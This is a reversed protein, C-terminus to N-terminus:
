CRQLRGIPDDNGSLTQTGAPVEARVSSKSEPPQVQHVKAGSFVDSPIMMGPSRKLGRLSSDDDTEPNAVVSELTSGLAHSLPLLTPGSDSTTTASAVVSTTAVASQEITTSSTATVVFRQSTCSFPPNNCFCFLLAM